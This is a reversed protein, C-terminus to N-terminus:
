YGNVYIEKMVAKEGNWTKEISCVWSFANQRAKMKWQM